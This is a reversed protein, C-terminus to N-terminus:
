KHLVTFDAFVVSMFHIVFEDYKISCAIVVQWLQLYTNGLQEFQLWFRREAAAALAEAKHSILLIRYVCVCACTYFWASLSLSLLLSTLISHNARCCRWFLLLYCYTHSITHTSTQKHAYLRLEGAITARKKCLLTRLSHSTQDSMPVNCLNRQQMQSRKGLTHSFKRSIKSICYPYM